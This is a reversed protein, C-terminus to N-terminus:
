LEEMLSQVYKPAFMRGLMGLVQNYDMSCPIFMKGGNTLTLSVGRRTGDKNSARYYSEIGFIDKLCKPDDEHFLRYPPNTSDKSGYKNKFEEDTDRFIWEIYLDFGPFEEYKKKPRGGAKTNVYCGHGHELAHCKVCLPVINEISDEGGLSKPLAHHWQIKSPDSEGCKICKNGHAAILEKKHLVTFNSKKPKEIRTMTM